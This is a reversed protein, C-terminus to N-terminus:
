RRIQGAGAFLIWIAMEITEIIAGYTDGTLGGLRAQFWWAMVVASLTGGGILAVGAPGLIFVAAAVATAGVILLPRPWSQRHFEMWLGAPRGYPVLAVAVVVAWRAVAPALLLGAMRWPPALSVLASWKLLLVSAIALVGFSGLRPDKMIALRKEPSHGGFIGDATDGLGDLHLGGTLVILAVLLVANSLLSPFLQSVAVNIALLVLGLLLGVAPFFAQTQAISRPDEQRIRRM